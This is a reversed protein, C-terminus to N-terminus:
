SKQTDDEDEEGDGIGALKLSTVMRQFAQGLRGIEDSRDRIEPPVDRDTEGRSLDNATETLEELPAVVSRVILFIVVAGIAVIVGNGLIFLTELGDVGALADESYDAVLVWDPSRFRTSTSLVADHSARYAYIDGGTRVVGEAGDADLAARAGPPVPPDTSYLLSGNDRLLHFGDILDTSRVVPDLSSALYEDSIEAKIVGRLDGDTDNIRFAIEALPREGERTPTGSFYEGEQVTAVWWAEDSQDYDVPSDTAAVLAGYRNTVMVEEFVPSGVRDALLDGSERLHDSLVNEIVTSRLQESGNRWARDREVLVADPSDMAAFAANSGNIVSHHHSLIVTYSELHFGVTALRTEVNHLAEVTMTTAGDDFTEGIAATSASTGYFNIGLMVLLLVALAAGIKPLIDIREGIM